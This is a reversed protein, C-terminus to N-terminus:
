RHGRGVDHLAFAHSAWREANLILAPPGSELQHEWWAVRPISDAPWKTAKDFLMWVDWCPGNSGVLSQFASGVLRQGDWFHKARPDSILGMSSLVHKEQAGLQPSWIVYVAV